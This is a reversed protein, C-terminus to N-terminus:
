LLRSLFTCRSAMSMTMEADERAKDVTSFEPAENVDVVMITILNSDGTEREVALTYNNSIEVDEFDITGARRLFINASTTTM